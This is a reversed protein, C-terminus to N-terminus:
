SAHAGVRGPWLRGPPAHHPLAGARRVGPSPRLFSADPRAHCYQQTLVCTRALAPRPCRCRAHCQMCFASAVIILSVLLGRLALVDAREDDSLPPQAAALEARADIAPDTVWRLLDQWISVPPSPSAHLQRWAIHTCDSSGCSGGGVRTNMGKWGAAAGVWCCGGVKVARHRMWRMAYPPDALLAQALQSRLRGAAQELAPGPLLRVGRFGGPKDLAPGSSVAVGEQALTAGLQGSRGEASLTRLLAQCARARAQQSPLETPSGWAYILQFSCLSPSFPPATAATVFYRRWPYILQCPAASLAPGARDSSHAVAATHRALCCAAPRCAAVGSSNSAVKDGVAAQLRLVKGGISGCWCM